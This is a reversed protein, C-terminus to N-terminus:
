IRTIKRRPGFYCHELISEERSILQPPNLSWLSNYATFNQLLVNGREEKRLNFNEKKIM